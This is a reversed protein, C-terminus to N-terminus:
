AAVLSGHVLSGDFVLLSAHDGQASAARFEMGEGVANAPQWPLDRLMGLLGEVDAV